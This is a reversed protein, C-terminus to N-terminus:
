AHVMKNNRIRAANVILKAGVWYRVRHLRRAWVPLCPMGVGSTVLSSFFREVETRVFSLKKWVPSCREEILRISRLRNGHQKHSASLGRHQKRRKAYLKIGIMDAAEYLKNSDYGADGVLTRGVGPRLSQVIETTAVSEAHNMPYVRWGCVNQFSDIVVHLKYGDSYSRSAWGNRSDPDKSFRSLPMAKGDTLLVRGREANRQIRDIVWKMDDHLQPDRLRRSM